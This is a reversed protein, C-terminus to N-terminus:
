WQWRMAEATLLSQRPHCSEPLLFDELTKLVLVWGSFMKRKGPFCRRPFCIKWTTKSWSWHVERRTCCTFLFLFYSLKGLSPIPFDVLFDWLWVSSLYLCMEAVGRLFVDGKFVHKYWKLMLFDKELVLKKKKRQGIALFKKPILTKGLVVFQRRKTRHGWLFRSLRLSKLKWLRLVQLCYASYCSVEGVTM